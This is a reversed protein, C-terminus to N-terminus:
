EKKLFKLIVKNFKEPNEIFMFHSGKEGKAFEELQAKSIQNKIWQQSEITKDSEKGTIILTPLNITKITDRWDNTIHNFLLQAALKRPMKLNEAIVWQLTKEDIESTFRSAIFRATFGEGEKGAIINVLDFIKDHLVSAGTKLSENQSWIPNIAMFPQQDVFVLKSFVTPKFMEFYCWLVSCGMSHSVVNVKNIKLHQLFDHFDVALRSIKYGNGPKQSLGHARMDLALVRYHHKFFRIQAKFMHATQSWGHLLILPQGHGEDIYHLKVDDNTYFYKSQYM